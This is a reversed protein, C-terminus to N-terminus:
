FAWSYAPFTNKFIYGSKFRFEKPLGLGHGGHQNPFSHPMTVLSTWPLIRFNWFQDIYCWKNRVEKTRITIYSPASKKTPVVAETVLAECLHTSLLHPVSLTLCGTCKPTAKSLLDRITLSYITWGSPSMIGTLKQPWLSISLTLQDTLQLTFPTSTSWIQDAHCSWAPCLGKHHRARVM